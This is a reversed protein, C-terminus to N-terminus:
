EDEKGNIFLEPRFHKSKIWDKYVTGGIYAVTLFIFSGISLMVVPVYSEDPKFIFMSVLIITLWLGGVIWAIVKRSKM